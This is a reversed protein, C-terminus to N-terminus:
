EEPQGLKPLPHPVYKKQNECVICPYQNERQQNKIKEWLVNSLIDNNGIPYIKNKNENKNKIRSYINGM